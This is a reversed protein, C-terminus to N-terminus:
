ARLLFAADDRSLLYRTSVAAAHVTQWALGILCSKEELGLATMGLEKKGLDGKKQFRFQGARVSRRTRTSEAPSVYRYQSRRRGASYTDSGSSIRSIPRQTDSSM